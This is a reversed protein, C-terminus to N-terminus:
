CVDISMWTMERSAAVVARWYGFYDEEEDFVEKQFGLAEYFPISNNMALVKVCRIDLSAQRATHVASSVLRLAM